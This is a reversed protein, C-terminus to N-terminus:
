KLPLKTRGSSIDACLEEVHNPDVLFVDRTEGRLQGVEFVVTGMLRRSLLSFGDRIERKQREDLALGMTQLLPRLQQGLASRYNEPTRTEAKELRDLAAKLRKVEDELAVEHQKMRLLTERAQDLRGGKQRHHVAHISATLRDFDLVMSIRARNEDRASPHLGRRVCSLFADHTFQIIRKNEPSLTYFYDVGPKLTQLLRKRRVYFNSRSAGLLKALYADTLGGTDNTFFHTVLPGLTELEVTSFHQRLLDRTAVHM